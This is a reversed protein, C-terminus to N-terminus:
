GTTEARLEALLEGQDALMDTLIRRAAGMLEALEPTALAYVVTSGERSAIVVGARRLVALQQSLSSAEIDIRTLLDRVPLPGEEQLLELVRIRAPHGLTRFFDAKAQYLPVPM